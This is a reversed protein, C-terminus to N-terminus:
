QGKEQRKIFDKTANRLLEAISWGQKQAFQIFKSHEDETFGVSIRSTRKEEEPMMPRGAAKKQKAFM